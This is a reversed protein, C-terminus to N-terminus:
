QGGAPTLSQQDRHAEESLTRDVRGTLDLRQLTETTPVGREDWGHEEYYQQLMGELEDASDPDILREPGMDDAVDLGHAANFLRQLNIM